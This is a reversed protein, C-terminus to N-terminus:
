PKDGLARIEEALKERVSFDSPGLLSNYVLKAAEELAEARAIRKIDNVVDMTKENYERRYEKVGEDRFATLSQAIRFELTAARLKIIHRGEYDNVIANAISRAAVEEATKM